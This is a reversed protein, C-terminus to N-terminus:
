CFIGNRYRAFATDILTQDCRDVDRLADLASYGQETNLHVLASGGPVTFDALLVRRQDGGQQQLALALHAALFSVSVASAGSVVAYMQGAATRAPRSSAGPEGAKAVLADLNGDDRGVVLFDRAGSRMAALVADANDNEGVAALTLSPYRESVRSLVAAREQSNDEDFEVFVLGVGPTSTVEKAFGEPDTSDAPLVSVRGALAENLWDRIATNNTLVLAQVTM